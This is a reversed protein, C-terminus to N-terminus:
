VSPRKGINSLPEDKKARMKAYMEKNFKSTMKKKGEIELNKLVFAFPEPELCYFALTKPDVLDDWSEITQSYEIANQVRERYRSKLKPRRKVLTPTEWWRHLRPLDDWLEGLPTEFDDGSVFFFRSKWYRFSSSLGKVIRTRREWPVLEYHEHEKSAKLRYLYVLKDM